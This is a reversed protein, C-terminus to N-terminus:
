HRPSDPRRCAGGSCAECRDNRGAIRYRNAAVLAYLRDMLWRLGPLYYVMVVRWFPGRAAVARVAAEAGRFVRGAPDVLHMAKDCAERSITSFRDLAGPANYDVLEVRSDPLRRALRTASGTCFRCRGDYIIKWTADSRM